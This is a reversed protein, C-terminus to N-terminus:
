DKLVCDIAQEFTMKRGEEWAISFSEEGLQERVAAIERKSDELRYLSGWVKYLMEAVGWFRAAKLLRETNEQRAELMGLSEFIGAAKWQWKLERCVELAELLLSRARQLDDQMLVVWGLNNLMMAIHSQEGQLRAFLLGEEAFAQASALDGRESAIGSLHVFSQVIGWADGLERRIKLSEEHLAQGSDLYGQATADWGAYTLALALDRKGSDGLARCLAVGQELLVRAKDTHGHFFNLFGSVWLARAHLLKDTADQSLAHAAWGCAEEIHGRLCWYWWLAGLLRQLQEVSGGRTPDTAWTFAARLNDYDRDLRDFWILNDPGYLEPEAGEAFQVFYDLHCERLKRVDEEGSALLRAYAYQQILEHLDFYMSRDAQTDVRLLSKDVLASLTALSAGAVQEAAERTFGGRFISVKRLVCQEEESLLKWSHDFVARISHHREPVDRASTSLIGINKELESVIEQCTLARTWSAALEIALPLGEVLNCIRAVLLRDADSWTFDPRVRYATQLFLQVAPYNEIEQTEELTPFPLGEVPLIWESQVNLRERSTVLFKMHPSSQLIEILLDSAAVLQEFNDLVLLVKRDTDQLNSILQPRVQGKLQLGLATMIASPLASAEEVGALPVLYVGHRYMGIQNEAARLALQSKGVGGPGVLTLMRCDPNALLKTIRTLENDRGIFPTLPRPLNHQHIRLSQLPQSDFQLEHVPYEGRASQLFRKREELPVALTEALLEAMQLSPRREDREIKKITEPACSVLRALENRTLDLAKRRRLVWYGFSYAEIM